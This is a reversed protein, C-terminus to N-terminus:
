ANSLVYGITICQFHDMFYLKFWTIALGCIGFRLSLRDLLANHDIIDFIVSLNFHVIAPTEGIFLVLYVDNQISLLM